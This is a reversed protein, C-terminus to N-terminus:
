FSYGYSNYSLDIRTATGSLAYDKDYYYTAVSDEWRGDSLDVVGNEKNGPISCDSAIVM